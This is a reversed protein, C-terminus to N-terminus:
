DTLCAPDFKYKGDLFCILERAARSDIRELIKRLELQKEESLGEIGDDNLVDLYPLLEEAKNDLFKNLLEVRLQEKERDSCGAYCMPLTALAVLGIQTELMPNVAHSVVVDSLDCRTSFPRTYIHKSIFKGDNVPYNDWITVKRKLLTQAKAFDDHYMQRSLVKNGTWFIEIDEDLNKTLDDFYNEPRTGFCKDLIPDFSYYTPCFVLRVDKDTVKRIERVIRNQMRNEDELSLCIDDFLIAIISCSVKDTLEKVKKKLIEIKSEDESIKLPSIGVGFDLGRERALLSMEKLKTLYATDFDDEWRRRLCQDNKPAYIYYSYGYHSIFDMLIKREEDDYIRGYFGEIIGLSTM